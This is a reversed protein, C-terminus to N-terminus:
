GDVWDPCSWVAAFGLGFRLSIHLLATGATPEVGFQAFAEPLGMLWASAMGGVNFILGSVSGGVLVRAWNM